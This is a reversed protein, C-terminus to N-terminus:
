RTNFHFINKNWVNANYSSVNKISTKKRTIIQMVFIKIDIVIQRIQKRKTHLLLSLIHPFPILPFCCHSRKYCNDM